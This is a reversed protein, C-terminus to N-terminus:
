LIPSGHCYLSKTVERDLKRSQFLFEENKEDKILLTISPLFLVSSIRLSPVLERNIFYLSQTRETTSFCENIGHM